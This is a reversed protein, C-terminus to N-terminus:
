AAACSRRRVASAPAPFRSRQAGLVAHAARLDVRDPAAVDPEVDIDSRLGVPPAPVQELARDITTPGQVADVERRAALQEETVAEVPDDGTSDGLM